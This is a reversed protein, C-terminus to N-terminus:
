NSIRYMKLLTSHAILEIGMHLYTSKENKALISYLHVLKKCYNWCFDLKARFFIQIDAWQM